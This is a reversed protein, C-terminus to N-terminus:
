FYKTFEADIRSEHGKHAEYNLLMVDVVSGFIIFLINYPQFANIRYHSSFM